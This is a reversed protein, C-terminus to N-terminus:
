DLERRFFDEVAKQQEPTVKGTIELSRKGDKVVLKRNRDRNVFDRLALGLQVLVRSSSLAVVITTVTAPDVGKSGEPPPPGAAFRAEAQLGQLEALLLRVDEDARSPDDDEVTVSIDAM